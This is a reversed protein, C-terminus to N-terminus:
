RILRRLLAGLLAAVVTGVPVAAEAPLDLYTRAAEAAVTAVAGTITHRLASGSTTNGTAPNPMM